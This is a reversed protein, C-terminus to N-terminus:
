QGGWLRRCILVVVIVMLVLGTTILAAVMAGYIPGEPPTPPNGWSPNM